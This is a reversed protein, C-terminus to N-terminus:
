SSTLKAKAFAITFARCWIVVTSYRKTDVSAPIDYQQTGKNGKLGGLDKYDDVDSDGAVPGAVLYVRLDPGNDTDLNTFTLKKGGAALKVIAATGSAEHALGDFSGRALELNQASKGGGSQRAGTVITENVTKDRFTTWAFVAAVVAATGLFSVGVPRKLEPWRRKVFSFGIAAAVFWAAGLAISSNYGPAVIGSFFWLGALLFVVVAPAVLFRAWVPLPRLSATPAAM